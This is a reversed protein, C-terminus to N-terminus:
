HKPFRWFAYREGPYPDGVYYVYDDDVGLIQHCGGPVLRSKGLDSVAVREIPGGGEVTGQCLYLAEDDVAFVPEQSLQFLRFDGGIKPWIAIARPVNMSTSFWQSANQQITGLLLTNSRGLAKRQGTKFDFTAVGGGGDGDTTQSGIVCGV